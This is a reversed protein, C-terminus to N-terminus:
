QLKLICCYGFNPGLTKFINSYEWIMGILSGDVFFYSCMSRRHSSCPHHLCLILISAKAVWLNCPGSNSLLFEYSSLMLPMLIGIWAGALRRLPIYITALM